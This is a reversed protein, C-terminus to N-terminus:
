PAATSEELIRGLSAVLDDLDFPKYIVQDAGSFEMFMNEREPDGSLDRHYGCTDFDMSGSNDLVLAIDFKRTREALGDLGADVEGFGSATVAGADKLIHTSDFM